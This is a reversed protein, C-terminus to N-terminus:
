ADPNYFVTVKALERDASTPYFEPFHGTAEGNQLWKEFNQGQVASVALLSIVVRGSPGGEFVSVAFNGRVDPRIEPRKPWFAGGQQRRHAIWLTCGHRWGTVHGRVEILGGVEDGDRPLELRGRLGGPFVTPAVLDGPLPALEADAGTSPREAAAGSLVGDLARLLKDTDSDFRAPSLELAQREALMALDDPLDSARPMRAKEVLIPIVRINRTLGARIELRVFDEPHDLRRQGDEGVITLWKDGILVLLVDCSAVASRIVDAFNEGPEIADIDRFVQGEGFRAVLRDFLWGAAFATEERRYSIFIRGFAAPVSSSM